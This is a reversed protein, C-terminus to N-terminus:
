GRAHYGSLLKSIWSNGESLAIELPTRGECDKAGINAGNRLLLRVVTGELALRSSAALHLPTSRNENQANVDAGHQLLLDVTIASGKSSAHHLPTSDTSDRATVDAGNRILLRVTDYKAHSSETRRQRFPKDFGEDQGNVDTM